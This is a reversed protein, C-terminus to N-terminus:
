VRKDEQEQAEPEEGMPMGTGMPKEEVPPTEAPVPETAEAMVDPAEEASMDKQTPMDEGGEYTNRKLLTNIPCTRLFATGALIAALVALLIRLSPNETIFLALLLFVVAAGIRMYAEQDGVNKQM